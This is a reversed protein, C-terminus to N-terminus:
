TLVPEVSRGRPFSATSRRRWRRHGANPSKPASGIAAKDMEEKNKVPNDFTQARERMVKQVDVTRAETRGGLSAFYRARDAIQNISRLRAKSYKAFGVVAKCDKASLEPLIRKTVELWDDDELTEPLPEFHSIRGIFPADDWGTLERTKQKATDFASTTILAVRVNHRALSTIWNVRSPMAYRQWNTPFAYAAEDLVLMLDGSQLVDEIRARLEASKLQLSASVGIARGIARFFGIDDQFCQIDASHSKWDGCSFLAFLGPRATARGIWCSQVKGV